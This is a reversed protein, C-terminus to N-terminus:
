ARPVSVSSAEQQMEWVVPVATSAGAYSDSMWVTNMQELKLVRSMGGVQCDGAVLRWVERLHGAAKPPGSGMMKKASIDNYGGTMFYSDHEQGSVLDAGVGRFIGHEM